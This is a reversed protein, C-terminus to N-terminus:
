CTFPNITKIADGLRRLPREAISKGAANAPYGARGRGRETLDSEFRIVKRGVTNEEVNM